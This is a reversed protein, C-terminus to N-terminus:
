VIEEQLKTLEANAVPQTVPTMAAGVPSERIVHIAEAPLHIFVHDNHPADKSRAEVVQGTNFDGLRVQLRYEGGRYQSRVLQGEVVNKMTSQNETVRVQEPVIALHARGPAVLRPLELRQPGGENAEASGDGLVRVSLLNAGM